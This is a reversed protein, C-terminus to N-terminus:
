SSIAEMERAAISRAVKKIEKNIQEIAWAADDSNVGAYRNEFEDRLKILEPFRRELEALSVNPGYQYFSKTAELRKEVEERINRSRERKHAQQRQEQTMMPQPTDLGYHKRSQQRRVKVQDPHLFGWEKQLKIAEWEMEDKCGNGGDHGLKVHALEHAIMAQLRKDSMPNQHYLEIRYSSGLPIVSGNERKTMPKETDTIEEIQCTLAAKTLTDLTNWVHWFAKRYRDDQINNKMTRTNKM